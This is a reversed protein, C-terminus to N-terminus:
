KSRLININGNVTEFRIEPGGTGVQIRANEGQRYIRKGRKVEVRMPERSLEEFEFDSYAKGNFTKFTMTGKLDSPFNVEIEGNVTKFSCPEKPSEAFTADISGNVTHISGGTTLGLASVPGNVNRLDFKGRTNEIIIKGENVTKVFLVMERPVELEFDYRVDYGYFEIGRWHINEGNRWPANIVIELRDRTESIDLTVDEKAESIKDSSEAEITRKATLRIESISTGVIKVSGNINDVFIRKIALNTFTRKIEERDFIEVSHAATTISILLSALTILNRNM